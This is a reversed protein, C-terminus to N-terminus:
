LRRYIADPIPFERDSLVAGLINAHAAVLAEKVRRATARRTREASLVLIIGDAAQAVATAEDSEGAVPGQVISYEFERRVEALFSNWSASPGSRSDRAGEPVLWLNGRVPTAVQALPSNRDEQAVDGSQKEADQILRPYAGVVAVRGTIQLALAEGVRRCISRVETEAELASFVVQRTPRIANSFFIQRVLGRIQERAFSEPNWGATPNGVGVEDERANTNAPDRAADRTFVPARLIGTGMMGHSM